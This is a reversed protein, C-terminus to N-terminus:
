VGRGAAREAKAWLLKEQPTMTSRLSRRKERESSKNYLKTMVGGRDGRVALTKRNVGADGGETGGQYPPLGSTM